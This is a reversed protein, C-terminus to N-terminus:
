CDRMSSAFHSQPYLSCLLESLMMATAGWIRHGQFQFFPAELVKNRSSSGFDGTKKNQPNLLESLPVILTQHVESEQHVLTPLTPLYGVVPHVKYASFPIILPSLAGIVQVQLADVGVEEQTERLATAIFDVDEQEWKGGPFSIQGPHKKLKLSRVTLLTCWQGEQEFLLLLVATPTLTLHKNHDIDAMRSAPAMLYQAAIGAPKKLAEILPNIELM